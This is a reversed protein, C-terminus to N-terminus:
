KYPKWEKSDKNKMLLNRNIAIGASREQISVSSQVQKHQDMSHIYDKSLTLDMFPAPTLEANFIRQSYNVHEYSYNEFDTDFGGVVDLCESKLYLMCGCPLEYETLGNSQNLVKRGFTYCLHNIGSNIYLMFWNDVKPFCDDDFLFIDTCDDLLALCMNKSKAIGKQDVTVIKAGPTYKRIMELAPTQRNGYVTIGIGLKM